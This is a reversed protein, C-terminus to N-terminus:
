LFESPSLMVHVMLFIGMGGLFAGYHAEHFEPLEHRFIKFMMSGALFATLVDIIEERPEFLFTAAFGALVAAVLGYRGLRIYREAYREQLGFDGSILHMGMMLAFAATLALNSPLQTSLTYVLLASYACSVSANLALGANLKDQRLFNREILIEIGYYIAFGIMLVFYIRAGLLESGKNIEPLLHLCLYAAALGGSFSATGRRAREKLTFAWPSIFHCLAFVLSLLFVETHRM